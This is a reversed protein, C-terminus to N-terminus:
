GHEVYIVYHFVGADVDLVPIAPDGFEDLTGASVQERHGGPNQGYVKKVAACAHRAFVRRTGKITQIEFTKMRGTPDM